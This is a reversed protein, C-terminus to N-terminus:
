WRADEDEESDDVDEVTVQGPMRMDALDQEILDVPTIEYSPKWAGGRHWQWDDDEAPFHFWFISPSMALELAAARDELLFSRSHGGVATTRVLVQFSM